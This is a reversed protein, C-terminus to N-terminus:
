IMFTFVFSFYRFHSVFIHTLTIKLLMDLKSFLFIGLESILMIHFHM